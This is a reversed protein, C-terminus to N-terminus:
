ASPDDHLLVTESAATQLTQAHSDLIAAGAGGFATDNSSFVIKWAREATTIEERTLDLREGKPFYLLLWSESSRASRLALVGPPVEAVAFDSFDRARCFPVARRWALAQRYLERIERHSSTHSEEWRLKSANFTAIDQPDPLARKALERAFVEFNMLERRRGAGVLSGLSAPLDTFYQFPTSAAWEQGMFLLPIGPQLCLLVSVARYSETGVLTNLRDGFPRNGAQDHNAICCVFQQPVLHARHPAPLRRTWGHQLIEVLERLDGRFRGAYVSKSTLSTELSHHFDDAWAGDLHFGDRSILIEENREDEAIVFAGCAHATDRLERLIHHESRDYIAHTADLRFGDVHFERVWYRLNQCFFARVPGSGPGDFHLADGWPTQRTSDFYDQSFDRLRNGHPGLHNYVVDLIVAMGRAHAADVLARFDDPGGYVRAPAFLMVGDYGWNRGGPFDGIPLLEIARIGLDRLEDLRDIVARFTGDATFTGVHLEYIILDRFEPPTWNRDSWAFTQPDIVLSAGEVGEPQWRSAPDPLFEGGDLSFFYRDGPRGEPDNGEFYGGGVESLEVRYEPRRERAQVVATVTQARPAWVTFRVGDSTLSAGLRTAASDTERQVLDITAGM